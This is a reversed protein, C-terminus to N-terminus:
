SGPNRRFFAAKYECAVLAVFVAAREKRLHGFVQDVADKIADEVILGLEPTAPLPLTLKSRVDFSPFLTDFHRRIEPMCEDICGPGDPMDAYEARLYAEIGRWERVAGVPLHFLQAM